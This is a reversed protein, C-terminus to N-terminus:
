AWTNNGAYRQLYVTRGAHSPSVSGFMAFTGGLRVSTRSVNSTVTTRVGVRRLASGSGVYATSGRYVWWYDVSATPKHAFSVTGASNSTRTTLLVWPTTGVRRVYLQVPVGAIGARTDARTLRGSVTVSGGDAQSTVNSSMTEGTGIITVASSPGYHGSRDKPWIRFSYTTGQTLALSVSTAAASYASTGTSVLTLRARVWAVVYLKRM